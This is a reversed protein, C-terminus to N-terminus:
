HMGGVVKMALLAKAELAHRAADREHENRLHPYALALDSKSWKKKAEDAFVLMLPINHRALAASLENRMQEQLRSSKISGEYRYGWSDCCVVACKHFKAVKICSGVLPWLSTTSVRCKLTGREIIDQGALVAYGTTSTGPDLGLIRGVRM